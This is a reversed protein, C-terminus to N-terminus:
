PVRACRFGIDDSRVAPAASNRYPPQLGPAGFRHSGGRLVQYAAATLEACDTCPSVYPGPSPSGSALDLNWEWVNGALDLQGWLGAGLTATGVAAIDSAGFIAYQSGLGPDTSGWPYARQQSGGAAAYEWEAESPLFGGDWICFAFAEFANVCNIPLKENAGSVNTWTSPTCSTLNPVTPAINANDAM